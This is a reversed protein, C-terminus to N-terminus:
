RLRIGSMGVMLMRVPRAAPVNRNAVLAVDVIQVVAMQVVRMIAADILMDHLDAGGIGVAARRLMAAAAMLRRVPVTRTAAMLGDRVAVVDVIQDIAMQVMRVAIM